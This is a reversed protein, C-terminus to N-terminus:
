QIGCSVTVTNWTGDETCAVSTEGTASYLTYGISCTFTVKTVTGNSSYGLDGDTLSSVSDCSVLFSFFFCYKKEFALFCFSCIHYHGLYVYKSFLCNMFIGGYKERILFM